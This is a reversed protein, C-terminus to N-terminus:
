RTREKPPTQPVIGASHLQQWEEGLLARAQDLDDGCARLALSLAVAAIVAKPTTAFGPFADAYENSRNRPHM